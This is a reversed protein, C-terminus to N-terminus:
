FSLIPQVSPIQWHHNSSSDLYETEDETVSLPSEALIEEIIDKDTDKQAVNTSNCGSLIICIIFFFPILCILKIDLTLGGM